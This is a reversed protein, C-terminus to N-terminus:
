LPPFVFVFFGLLSRIEGVLVSFVPFFYFSTSALVM